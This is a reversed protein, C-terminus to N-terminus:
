IDGGDIALAVFRWVSLSLVYLVFCTCQEVEIGAIGALMLV